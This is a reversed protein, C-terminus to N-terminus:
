EAKEEAEANLPAKAAAVALEEARKKLMYNQLFYVGVALPIMILSWFQSPSLSGVFEGRHDARFFEIVFRWIGYSGLYLSLGHKFDFKFILFTLVAFVVFLFIAEYLQTPVYYGLGMDGHMKITGFVYETGKFAGHCCGGFLCGIRGFAHAILICCPLYSIVDILRTNYKKRFIFYLGLFSGAGGILGGLFTIGSGFEFVGTELYNYFAQFLAAFFFGIAIAGIGIYFIFDIFNPNYNLKKAYFFLVFFCALLGVAIMVGYMTPGVTTGGVDIQFLYDPYM